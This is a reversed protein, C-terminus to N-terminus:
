FSAWAKSRSKPNHPKTGFPWVIPYLSLLAGMQGTALTAPFLVWSWKYNPWPWRKSHILVNPEGIPAIQTAVM